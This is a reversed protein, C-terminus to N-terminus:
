PLEGRSADMRLLASREIIRLLVARMRQKM